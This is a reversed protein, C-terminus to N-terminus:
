DEDHTDYTSAWALLWPSAQRWFPAPDLKADVVVGSPARKRGSSAPSEPTSRLAVALRGAPRWVLISLAILALAVGGIVLPMAPNRSVEVTIFRGSRLQFTDGAVALEVDGEVFQNFVLERRGAQFAQVLFAPGTFGREPLTPFAVISVVLERGPVFFVQEARPQDFVLGLSSQARSPQDASQIQLLAGTQDRASVALSQGQGTRHITLGAVRARGSPSLSGSALTDNDSQVTLTDNAPTDAALSLLLRSDHQLRVAQGPLLAVGGERWGALQGLWLGAIALAVGAYFIPQAALAWPSREAVIAAGSDTASSVVRWGESRLDDSLETLASVSDRDLEVTAHVPWRRAEAVAVAPDPHRLRKLADGLAMGLRLLVVFALAAMLIRFWASNRLDFLDAGRFVVGLSGYRSTVESEWRTLADVDTLTTPAQPLLLGAVIALALLAILAGLVRGDVALRYLRDVPNTRQVLPSPQATVRDGAILLGLRSGTPARRTLKM